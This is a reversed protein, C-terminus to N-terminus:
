YAYLKEYPRSSKPVLKTFEGELESPDVGFYHCFREKARSLAKLDAEDLPVVAAEKALLAEDVRGRVLIVGGHIGTGVFRGVPPRGALGFVVLRGGAMYEGLFDGTRGGVVILPQHGKYAKMHIGTRYGVDGKIYIQGGRMSHGVIDGAHGHVVVVGGSMTNGIGDQGNGRVVITPGDMFSALDNGPTGHIEIRVRDTMGAGIYRQGLVNELVIRRAGSAAASRVRENLEKYHLGDANIIM